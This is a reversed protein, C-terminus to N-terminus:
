INPFCNTIIIWEYVKSCILTRHFSSSNLADGLRFDRLDGAAATPQRRQVKEGLPLGTDQHPHVPVPHLGVDHRLLRYRSILGNHIKGQVFNSISQCHELM